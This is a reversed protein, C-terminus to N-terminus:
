NRHMKWLRALVPELSLPGVSTRTLAGVALLGAIAVAPRAHHARLEDEVDADAVDALLEAGLTVLVSYAPDLASGPLGTGHLLQRGLDADLDTRLKALADAASAGGGIYSAVADVLLPWGGTIHLLRDRDAIDTFQGHQDHSWGELGISDLRRCAVVSDAALGAQAPDLIHLWRDLSAAGIFLITARTVGAIHLRADARSLAKTFNEEQIDTVNLYVVRHLAGREGGILADLFGAPRPPSILTFTGLAQEAERLLDQLQDAGTAESGLVIRLQNRRGIVDALQAETLPSVRFGALPRRVEAAVKAGPVQAREAHVLRTEIEERTGLMRRVNASRLAWCAGEQALVGLTVMEILLARFEDETVTTFGAPWWSDCEERLAVTSLETAKPESLAALGLVAAVVGYRPDLELTLRLKGSVEATLQPSSWVQEFEDATLQYPVPTFEDRREYVYRVLHECVLQLLIPQYNCYALIRWAARDDEEFSVGLAALPETVLRFAEAPALPGIPAPKGLHVLPQNPLSAFRAVEHLGAFVPKFRQETGNRLDRLKATQAFGDRADEDFFRDCEDFLVLIRKGPNAELWKEVAGKVAHHADRRARGTARIDAKNLASRLADWIDKPEPTPVYVAVGCGTDIHRRQAARLLASKGLQRGGYVLSTGPRGMLESLEHARGYFMETPVNGEAQPVYPNIASFPLLLRMTATVSAEPRSALFAMAADDLVVVPKGGLSRCAVALKRRADAPLTGFLCVLVPTDTPDQRVWDVISQPTAPGWVLLLRLKGDLASGFAPVVANGVVSVGTLDVFRRDRSRADKLAPPLATERTAEFGALRLPAALTTYNVIHRPGSTADNWGRLAAERLGRIEPTLAGYSCGATDVGARVAILLEPTLGLPLADPVTPFFEVLLDPTVPDPLPLGAEVAALVEDASALEGVAIQGRVRREEDLSVRGNEVLTNLHATIAAAAATALEPLRAAIADLEAEVVGLDERQTPDAKEVAATLTINDEDDLQGLRTALRIKDALATHRDADADSRVRLAAQLQETLQEGLLPDAAAAAVIAHRATAFDGTSIRAAVVDPWSTDFAARLALLTVGDNYLPRLSEDLPIAPARLLARGLVQDVSSEEPGNPLDGASLLLGALDLAGALLAAGAAGAPGTATIIDLEHRAAPLCADSAERLTRLEGPLHGNPSRTLPRAARVWDHVCCLAANVWEVVKARAKGQLPRASSRGRIERDKIDILRRLQVPDSIRQAAENVADLRIRHDNAVAALLSGIEGNPAFLQAAIDTARAFLVTRSRSLESRAVETISTVEANLSSFDRLARLQGGALAGRQAATSVAQTLTRLGVYDSIYVGAIDLVAGAEPSGTVLTTRLAAAVMALQGLRNRSLLDPDLKELAVIAEDAITGHDSHLAEALTLARLAETTTPQQGARALWYGLGVDHSTIATYVLATEDSIDTSSDTSTSDTTISRSHHGSASFNERTDGYTGSPAPDNSPAPRDNAQIPAVESHTESRIKGPETATSPTTIAPKDVLGIPTTPATTTSPEVRSLARGAAGSHEDRPGHTDASTDPVDSAGPNHAADDAVSDVVGPSSAFGHNESVAPAQASAVSQRTTPMADTPTGHVITADADQAPIKAQGLMLALPLPQLPPPLLPRVETERAHLETVSAGADRAEALGLLGAVASRATSDGTDAASRLATLPDRCSDLEDPLRLQALRATMERYPDSALEAAAYASTLTDLDANLPPLELGAAAAAAAALSQLKHQAASIKSLEDQLRTTDPLRRAILDTAAANLLAAGENFAQIATTTATAFETSGIVVPSASDARAPEVQTWPLANLSDTLVTAIEAILASDADSGPLTGSRLFAALLAAISPEDIRALLGAAILAAPTTTLLEAILDDATQHILAPDADTHAIEAVHENLVPALLFHLATRLQDDKWRSMRSLAATGVPEESTPSPRRAAPVKLDTLFRTRSPNPVQWAANIFQTGTVARLADRMPDGLKVLLWDIGTLQDRWATTLVQGWADDNDHHARHRRPRGNAVNV